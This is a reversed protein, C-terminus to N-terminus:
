SNILIKNTVFDKTTSPLDQLVDHSTEHQLKNWKYAAHHQILKIGYFDTNRQTLIVSNQKAHRTYYQRLNESKSFNNQFPSISLKRLVDKVFLCNLLKIYDSIILRKDNKYLVEVGYNNARFNIIRVAKDQLAQTKNLTNINQGM